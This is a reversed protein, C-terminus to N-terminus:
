RFFNKLDTKCNDCLAGYRLRDNTMKVWDDPLRLGQRMICIDACHKGLSNEVNRTRYDPLLGFVHGLEHMTETKICEYKSNEDLGKFQYTSIITGIGEGGLGIVFNTDRDYMDSVLALLDYHDENKKWPEFSLLHYITGANIQHNNRSTEMGKQLYWDVSCYEKLTRDKKLFERNRWVDFDVVEIERANAIQLLNHIGDLIAHKELRSLGNENM